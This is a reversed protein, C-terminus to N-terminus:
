RGVSSLISVAPCSPYTPQFSAIEEIYVRSGWLATNTARIGASARPIGETIPMPPHLNGELTPMAGHVM